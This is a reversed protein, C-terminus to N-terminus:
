GVTRGSRALPPRSTPPPVPKAQSLVPRRAAVNQRECPPRTFLHASYCATRREQQINNDNNDNNDNNYNNYNNNVGSVVSTQAEAPVQWCHPSRESERTVICVSHSMCVSHSRESECETYTNYVHTINICICICIICCSDNPQPSSV